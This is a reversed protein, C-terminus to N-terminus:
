RADALNQAQMFINRVSEPLQAWDTLEEPPSGAADDILLRECRYTGDPLKQMFYKYDGASVCAAVPNQM